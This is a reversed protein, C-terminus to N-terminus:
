FVLTGISVREKGPVDVYHRLEVPFFTGASTLVEDLEVIM